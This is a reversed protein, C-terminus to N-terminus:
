KYFYKQKEDFCIVPYKPNYEEEYLDLVKYMKRRYEADIEAICWM